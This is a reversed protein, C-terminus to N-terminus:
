NSFFACPISNYKEHTKLSHLDFILIINSNNGQSTNESMTLHTNTTHLM